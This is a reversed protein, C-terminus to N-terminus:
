REKASCKCYICSHMSSAAKMGLMILLFKYDGGLYVDVKIKKGDVTIHKEEIISNVDAVVNAFSVRLTDYDEKAKAVAVAHTGTLLHM